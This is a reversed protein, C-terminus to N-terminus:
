KYSKWHVGGGLGLVESAWYRLGGANGGGM